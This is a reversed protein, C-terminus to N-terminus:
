NIICQILFYSIKLFFRNESHDISIFFFMNCYFWNRSTLHSVFATVPTMYFDKGPGRWKEKGARKYYISDGTEYIQHKICIQHHLVRNIMESPETKIFAQRNQHLTSIHEAFTKSITTGDLAPLNDQLVNLLNPNRGFVLQYSSFGSNTHLCNKSNKGM